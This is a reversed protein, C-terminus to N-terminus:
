FRNLFFQNLQEDKRIKKLAQYLTNLITQNAVGMIEAIENTSLNNYYRLYIAERQRMPLNNLSQVLVHQTLNETDKQVLIDEPSFQIDLIQFTDISSHNQRKEKKTKEILRRRLSRFLYAKVQQVDGLRGYSEFIYIFLEQICEEVVTQNNIVRLGYHQMYDYYRLFLVSLADKDGEKIAAFVDIDKWNKM